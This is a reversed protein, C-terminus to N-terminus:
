VSVSTKEIQMDKTEKILKFDFLNSNYCFMIQSALKNKIIEDLEIKNLFNETDEDEQLIQQYSLINNNEGKLYSFIILINDPSIKLWTLIKEWWYNDSEGLSM